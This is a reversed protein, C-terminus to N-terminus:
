RYICKQERHHHTLSQLITKCGLDSLWSSDMNYYLARADTKLGLNADNTKYSVYLVNPIPIHSFANKYDANNLKKTCEAQTVKTNPTNKFAKVSGKLSSDCWFKNDYKTVSVTTVHNANTTNISKVISYHIEGAFVSSSLILLQGSIVAKLLKMM